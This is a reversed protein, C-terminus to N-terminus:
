DPVVLSMLAPRDRDSPEWEARSDLFSEVYSSLDAERQRLFAGTDGDRLVKLAGESVLHSSLISRDECSALRRRLSRGTTPPHLIRNALGQEEPLVNKSTLRMTPGNTRECLDAIQLPEGTELHRPGLASLAVLQMKTRAYRFRFPRLPAQVDPRRGVEALLNRLSAAEDEPKIADLTRRLAVTDGRHTGSVAGRWLWRALLLRTRPAPERHEHFFLALTVLPLKYPMLAIHPFRAEKAFVIASRLASETDALAAPVDNRAVQRFGRAPDKRRVALLARLVLKPDIRGFHLDNLTNTIERLSSPEGSTQAGFLADFVEAAQLQKGSSNTRDFIQRLVEEEAEVVYAPAQYERVRKGLDFASFQAHGTLRHEHAWALLLASDHVVTLPIWRPAPKQASTGYAFKREALDFRMTRSAPDAGAGILLVEALTTVRQQGDVVWLADTRREADIAFRGFEIRAAEAPHKWLLLTGIPFGRYISDFLAVRDQDDWHLGRQFRPIRIRGSQIEALLDEISFSRAEPRRDLRIAQELATTVPIGEAEHNAVSFIGAFRREDRRRSVIAM